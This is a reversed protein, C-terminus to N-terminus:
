TVSGGTVPLCEGNIFDSALTAIFWVASACQAVPPFRGAPITQVRQRVYDDVDIGAARAHKSPL